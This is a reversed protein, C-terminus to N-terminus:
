ERVSAEELNLIVNALATAAALEILNVNSSAGSQGVTLLEDAEDPAAEYNQRYRQYADTLISLEETQPTRSLVSRFGYTVRDEVSAEPLMAMREGLKRAAEFFATENLLTLAQLPTNAQKPKVSCWERDASDLIAM